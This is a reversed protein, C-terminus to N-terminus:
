ALFATRVVKLIREALAWLKEELIASYKARLAIIGAWAYEETRKLEALKEKNDGEKIKEIKINAIIQAWQKLDGFVEEGKDKFEASIEKLIEDTIKKVNESM